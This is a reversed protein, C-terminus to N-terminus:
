RFSFRAMGFWRVFVGRYEAGSWVVRIRDGLESDTYPRITEMLANGNFIDVREISESAKISVELTQVSSPAHVIDGMFAENTDYGKDDSIRPDNHFLRSGEPFILNLLFWLVGM